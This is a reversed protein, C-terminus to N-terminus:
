GKRLDVTNMNLLQALNDVASQSEQHISEEIEYVISAIENIYHNKLEFTFKNEKNELIYECKRKIYLFGENNEM